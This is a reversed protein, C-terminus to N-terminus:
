PYIVALYISGAHGARAWGRCAEGAIRRAEELEFVGQWSRMAPNLRIMHQNPFGAYVVAAGGSEVMTGDGTPSLLLLLATVALSALPSARRLVAAPRFLLIPLAAIGAALWGIPRDFRGTGTGATASLVIM